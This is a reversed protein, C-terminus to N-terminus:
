AEHGDGEEDVWKEVNHYLANALQEAERMGTCEYRTTSSKTKYEIWTKREKMHITIEKCYNM